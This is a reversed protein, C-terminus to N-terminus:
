ELREITARRNIKGSATVEFQELFFVEKPVAYKSVRARIQMQLDRAQNEDVQGIEILLCVKQGLKDDPLGFIFYNKGSFKKEFIPLIQNEIEEPHIKVGGSNITFDARGKWIFEKESLLEVIDQTELRNGSGMPSTIVLRRDETQSFKVGPLAKYVPTQLHNVKALAVHSVTETMGFTQYISIPFTLAKKRLSENMPAGGIILNKIGLLKAQSEEHNMITELQLPVMAAFDFHIGENNNELPNGSPNVVYVDAGWELARVLMMKGAIMEINLCCLLSAGKQIEFFDGTGRASAEMQARSVLIKKPKGTSGSTQLEFHQVGLLWERCFDIAKQFYSEEVQIYTNQIVTFSYTRQNIILSGM